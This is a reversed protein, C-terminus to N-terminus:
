STGMPGGGAEWDVDVLSGRDTIISMNRQDRLIHRWHLDKEAHVWGVM